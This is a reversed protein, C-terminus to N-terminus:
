RVAEALLRENYIVELQDGYKDTLFKKVAPTYPGKVTRYSGTEEPNDGKLAFLTKTRCQRKLWQRRSEAEVLQDILAEADMPFEGLDPWRPDPPLPPLSKAWALFRDRLERDPIHIDTNGGCGRNSAEGAKKGDIMITASFCTTEESLRENIKVAKLEVKM